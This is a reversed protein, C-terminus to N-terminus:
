VFLRPRKKVSSTKTPAKSRETDSAEPLIQQLQRGLQDFITKLSATKKAIQQHTHDGVNIARDLNMLKRQAEPDSKAQERLQMIEAQLVKFEEIQKKFGLRRYQLTDIMKKFQNIEQM